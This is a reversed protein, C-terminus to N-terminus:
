ASVTASSDQFVPGATIADQISRAKQAEAAALLHDLLYFCRSPQPFHIFHYIGM